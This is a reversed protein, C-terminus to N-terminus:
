NGTSVPPPPAFTPWLGQVVFALVFGVVVGKIRELGVNLNAIEYAPAVLIMCCAYGLQYGFYNQSPFVRGIYAAVFLALFMLLFYLVISPNQNLLLLCLISYALAPFISIFRQWAKTQLAGMDATSGLLLASVATTAVQLGLLLPVLLALLSMVTLMVSRNVWDARLPLLPQSGLDIQLSKTFGLAVDLMEILLIGIGLQIGLSIVSHLLKSPPNDLSTAFASVMYVASLLTGYTLRGSSMLYFMPLLGLALLALSLVPSDRFFLVILVSYAYGSFRGVLDEIAKQFPKKKLDIAVTLATATGLYGFGLHYYETIWLCILGVSAARLGALVAYRREEESVPM